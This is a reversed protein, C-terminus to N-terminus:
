GKAVVESDGATAKTVFVQGPFVQIDKFRPFRKPEHSGRSPDTIMDVGLEDILQKIFGVMGFSHSTLPKKRYLLRYMLKELLRPNASYREGDSWNDWYGTRWDEIVYLGGPKLYNRFLHWFSIKALDGVHAADDIVIDFGDPAVEKAVRDLLEVDEQKGQYFFIRGCTDTIECSNVDVGAIRSNPFYDRWLTLSAGSEVGLELLRIQKEQLPAFYNEYNVLYRYPKRATSPIDFLRM